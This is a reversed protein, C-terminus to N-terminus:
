DLCTITVAPFSDLPTYAYDARYDFPGGTVDAQIDGDLTASLAVYDVDWRTVTLDQHLDSRVGSASILEMPMRPSVLAEWVAEAPNTLTYSITSDGFDNDVWITGYVDLAGLNAAFLEADAEDLVLPSMPADGQGLLWVLPGTGTFTVTITGDANDVFDAGVLYSDLDFLDQSVAEGASGFWVEAGADPGDMVYRGEDFTVGDAMDDPDAMYTQSAYMLRTIVLFRLGGYTVMALASDEFLFALSTVDEVDHDGACRDVDIREGTWLNESCGALLCAALAFTLGRTNMM